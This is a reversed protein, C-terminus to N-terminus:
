PNLLEYLYKTIKTSKNIPNYGSDKIYYDTHEWDYGSYSVSLYRTTFIISVPNSLEADPKYISIMFSGKDYLHSHSPELGEILELSNIYNLLKDIIAKDTIEFQRSNMGLDFNSTIRIYEIDRDNNYNLNVGDKSFSAIRIQFWWYLIIFCLVLLIAM